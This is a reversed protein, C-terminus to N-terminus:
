GRGFELALDPPLRLRIRRRQEGLIAMEVEGTYWGPSAREGWEVVAAGEELHEDLGLSGLDVGDPLRYLDLHHLTVRGPHISHLLFTPSRVDQDGGAGAVIGQVLTTKGAGLQGELALCDGPRLCSGLRAGVARTEEPGESILQIEEM